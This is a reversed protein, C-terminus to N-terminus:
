RSGAASSARYRDLIAARASGPPSQQQKVASPPKSTKACRSLIKDLYPWGPDRAKGTEEIAALIWDKPLKRSYAGLRQQDNPLMAGIHQEYASQVEIWDKAIEGARPPEPVPAGQADEREEEESDGEGEPDGIREREELGNGTVNGTVNGKQKERHKRVRASVDDSVPQRRDWNHMVFRGRKREVLRAGVLDQVLKVADAETVHLAYATDSIEKPLAGRPEQENALALLMAWGWRTEVPLRQIKGDHLVESYFRFWPLTM